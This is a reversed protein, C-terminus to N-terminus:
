KSPWQWNYWLSVNILYIWILYIWGTWLSWSLRFRSRAWQRCKVDPALRYPKPWQFPIPCLLLKVGQGSVKTWWMCICKVMMYCFQEEPMTEWLLLASGGGSLQSHWGLYWATGSAHHASQHQPWQDSVVLETSSWQCGNCWFPLCSPVVLCLIKLPSATHQSVFSLLPPSSCM